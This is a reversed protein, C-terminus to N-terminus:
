PKRGVEKGNRQDHYFREERKYLWEDCRYYIKLFIFYSM